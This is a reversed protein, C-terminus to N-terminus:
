WEERYRTLILKSKKKDLDCITRVDWFIRWRVKGSLVLRARPEYDCLRLALIAFSPVLAGLSSLSRRYGECWISAGSEPCPFLRRPMSFSILFSRLLFNIQMDFGSITSYCAKSDIKSHRKLQVCSWTGAKSKLLDGNFSCCDRPCSVWLKMHLISVFHIERETWITLSDSFSNKAIMVSQDSLISSLATRAWNLWSCPFLLVVFSPLDFIVYLTSIDFALVMM